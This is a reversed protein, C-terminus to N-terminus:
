TGGGGGGGQDLKASVHLCPFNQLWSRLRGRRCDTCTHPCPSRALSTRPYPQHRASQCSWRPCPEWAPLISPKLAHTYFFVIKTILAEGRNCTSHMSGLSYICSSWISILYLPHLSERRTDGQNNYRTPLSTDRKEQTNTKKTHENKEDIEQDERWDRRVPHDSLSLFVYFVTLQALWGNKEWLGGAVAM